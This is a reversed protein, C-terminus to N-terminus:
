DTTTNLASGTYIYDMPKPGLGAYFCRLDDIHFGAEELLSKIDRDLHCGDFLKKQLPNLRRQWKQVTLDPSMGHEVFIFRGEPQLVRRIESLAQSLGAISCLTFTSVVTDFSAGAFPLNEGHLRHHEVPFSHSTIKKQALRNMGPNPEVTSLRTVDVGYCPLNLGTGFGIELVRGRANRLAEQRLRTVAPVDLSKDLLRPMIYRTYIGM